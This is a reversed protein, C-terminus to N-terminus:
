GLGAVKNFPSGADAFSAVGGAVPTAFGCGDAWRRRAAESCAAVLEAEVREIRAALAIDCFLASGITHQPGTPGGNDLRVGRGDDGCLARGSGGAGAALNRRTGAGAGGGRRGRRLRVAVVM